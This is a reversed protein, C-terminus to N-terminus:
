QGDERRSRNAEGGKTPPTSTTAKKLKYVSLRSSAGCYETNSGACLMRCETAPAVLSSAALSHGCYCERGYETGFFEYDKCWDACVKNTMNDQALASGALARTGNGETQCGVLVYNSVSAPQEPNGTTINPNQYLELRSSAGCYEYGDGSCAMNCEELPASKSSDALYSGCYCESGYQTGFYKYNKCFVACAENSMKDSFTSGQSLARVGNGETWCGVLTYPSVTPKHMLTATPTPTAPASTTSYLELRNGAGCYESTDGGCVM